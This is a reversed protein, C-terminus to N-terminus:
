LHFSDWVVELCRFWTFSIGHHHFPHPSFRFRDNRMKFYWSLMQGL